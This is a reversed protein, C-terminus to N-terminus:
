EEVEVDRDPAHHSTHDFFAAGLDREELLTLRLTLRDPGYPMEVFRLQHIRGSRVSYAIEVRRPGRYGRKKVAVILRTPQERSPSGDEPSEVPLLQVDYATRLQEMTEQINSLPMSHEHGPVDRNFRTLDPSVRVPGDPRIAWSTQGNSGTVFPMGERTTRILVFQDGGRVHLIAGDMPPKPPRHDIPKTPDRRAPPLAVEEVTIEYTRDTAHSNVSILRDLETVAASAPSGGLGRWLVALLIVAAVSAGAIATIRRAQRHAASWFTPIPGPGAVRPLANGALVEGRLRDHLLSREAFERAFEPSERLAREFAALEEASLRDDLYSDITATTDAM